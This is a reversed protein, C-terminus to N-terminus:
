LQRSVSFLPCNVAVRTSFTDRAAYCTPAGRLHATPPRTHDGKATVGAIKKSGM